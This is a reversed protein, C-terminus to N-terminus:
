RPVVEKSNQLVADIKGEMRSVTKILDLLNDNTGKIAQGNATVSENTTKIAGLVLGLNSEVKESNAKKNIETTLETKVNEGMTTVSTKVDKVTNELKTFIYVVLAVNLGLLVLLIGIFAFLVYYFTQTPMTQIVEETVALLM